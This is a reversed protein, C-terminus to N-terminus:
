PPGSSTPVRDAAHGLRRACIRQVAAPASEAVTLDEYALVRFRDGVSALLEGPRLLFDPNRPRGFRENGVAFTEYLLLGGSAVAAVIAPLMPRHLYNVVVVADFTRGALPWPNGDELDAELIELGDRGALDALPGVDRDVATVRHGRSLLLRGHRGGGAAVDLVRGGPAISPAFRVIWASPALAPDRHAPRATM